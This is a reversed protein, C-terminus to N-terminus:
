HQEEQNAKDLGLKQRLEFVEREAEVLQRTNNDNIFHLHALARTLDQNEQDLDAVRDTSHAAVEEAYRMFRQRLEETRMNWGAETQTSADRTTPTENKKNDATSTGTDVYIKETQTASSSM